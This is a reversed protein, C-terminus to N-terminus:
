RPFVMILDNLTGANLDVDCIFTVYRNATRVLFLHVFGYLHDLDDCGVKFLSLDKGTLDYTDFFETCEDLECRALFAHNVNRLNGFLSDLM